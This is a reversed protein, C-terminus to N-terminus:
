KKIKFIGGCFLVGALWIVLHLIYSDAEYKKDM